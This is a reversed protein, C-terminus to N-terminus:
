KMSVYIAYYMMHLRLGRPILLVKYPTKFLAFLEETEVWFEPEVYNDNVDEYRVRAIQLKLTEV